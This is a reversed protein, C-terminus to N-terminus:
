RSHRDDSVHRPGPRHEVVAVHGGPPGPEGAARQTRRLTRRRAPPPRGPRPFEQVAGPVAARHGGDPRHAHWRRVHTVTLLRMFTSLQGDAKPWVLLHWHNPMLCYALLRIRTREVAEALVKEFAAYDGEDEFLTGRGVARNLVHYVVGGAASRLKRAMAPLM